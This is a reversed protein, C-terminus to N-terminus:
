GRGMYASCGGPSLLRKYKFTHYHRVYDAVSDINGAAKLAEGEFIWENSELELRKSKKMVINDYQSITYFLVVYCRHFCLNM